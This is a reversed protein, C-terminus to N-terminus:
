GASFDIDFGPQLRVYAKKWNPRKGLFRGARKVKGKVNLIQVGEVKVSFLYEVANKVEGKTAKNDVRFAVRREKEASRTNKESIIPAHLVSFLKFQRM